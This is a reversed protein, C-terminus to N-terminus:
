WVIKFRATETCALWAPSKRVNFGLIPESFIVLLSLVALFTIFLILVIFTGTFSGGEECSLCGEHNSYFYNSECLDCLRGFSGESCLYRSSGASFKDEDNQPLRSSSSSSNPSGAASAIICATLNDKSEFCHRSGASEGGVCNDSAFCVEADIGPLSMPAWYGRRPM